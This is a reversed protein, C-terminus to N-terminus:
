LLSLAPREVAGPVLDGTWDDRTPMMTPKGYISNQAPVTQDRFLRPALQRVAEQEQMARQQEAMQMSIAKEKVARDYAGQYAEQGAMVGTALLQGLGRRQPSPGSNALLSLGINMLGSQQAQQQLRRTEDEGLLGSMYSPPPAFLNNVFDM